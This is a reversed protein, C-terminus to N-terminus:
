GQLWEELTMRQDNSLKKTFKKGGLEKAGRVVGKIMGVLAESFEQEDPPLEGLVGLVKSFRDQAVAPSLPGDAAVAARCM